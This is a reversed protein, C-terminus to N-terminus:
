SNYCLILITVYIIFIDLRCLYHLEVNYHNEIVKHINVVCTKLEYISRVAAVAPISLCLTALETFDTLGIIKYLM